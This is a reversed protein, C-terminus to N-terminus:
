SSVGSVANSDEKISRVKKYLTCKKKKGIYTFGEVNTPSIANKSEAFEECKNVSSFKSSSKSTYIKGNIAMGDKLDFDASSYLPLIFITTILLKKM